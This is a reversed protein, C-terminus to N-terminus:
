EGPSHIISGDECLQAYSAGSKEMLKRASLGGESTVPMTGNGIVMVEFGNKLGDQVTALVCVDEALGGVWLRRVRDRRLREAFGTQDFASNQDQDFRVGKTVKVASAPLSLDPHFEAGSSDQLCHVPWNGGGERFSPHGAPHWDRSAYVPIGMAAATRIWRNLVPVVSDGGSIPLAGGPCFDVQVDVIVLADGPRMADTVNEGGGADELLKEYVRLSPADFLVFRIRKVATLHHVERRVTEVAIKAAPELPYGFIGTSLAPFAVSVAGREEALRLANRYCNALLEEQHQDRGYVPGLCHIVYKNPLRHAGTIVAEGSRIPALPRCEAELGPGAARHIAGAVGGGPLLSANAANIVADM